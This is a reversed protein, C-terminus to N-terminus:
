GRIQRYMLAGFSHPAIMRLVLYGPGFVDIASFGASALQRGRYYYLSQTSM